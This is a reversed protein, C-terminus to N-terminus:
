MLSSKLIVKYNNWAIQYTTDCACDVELKPLM